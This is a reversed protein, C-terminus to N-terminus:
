RFGVVFNLLKQWEEVVHNILSHNHGLDFHDPVRV